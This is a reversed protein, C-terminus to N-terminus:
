FEDPAAAPLAWCTSCLKPPWTCTSAAFNASMFIATMVDIPVVAVATTCPRPRARSITVCNMWRLGCSTAVTAATAPPISASPMAAVVAEIPRRTIAPPIPTSFDTSWIIGARNVGTPRAAVVAKAATAAPTTMARVSDGAKWSSVSAIQFAIVCISKPVAHSIIFRLKAMARVCIPCFAVLTSPVILPVNAAAPDNM